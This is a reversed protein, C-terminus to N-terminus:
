LTAKEARRLLAVRRGARAARRARGQAAVRLGGAMPSAIFGETPDCVARTLLSETGRAFAVHYGRETDLPVWDGISAALAKSHAGAAVIVDDAVLESGDDLRM